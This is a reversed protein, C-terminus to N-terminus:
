LNAKLEAAAGAHRDGTAPDHWAVSPVTPKGLADPLVIVKGDRWCTVCSFTTGLDIGIIPGKKVPASELQPEEQKREEPEEYKREEKNLEEQPTPTATKNLNDAGPNEAKPNNGDAM